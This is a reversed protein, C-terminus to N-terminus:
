RRSAAGTTIIPAMDAPGHTDHNTALAVRAASSPVEMLPIANTNGKCPSEAGSASPGETM